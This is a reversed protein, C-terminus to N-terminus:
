EQGCDTDRRPRSGASRPVIREFGVITEFGTILPSERVPLTSSAGQATASLSTPRTSVCVESGVRVARKIPLMAAAPIPSYTVEVDARPLVVIGHM